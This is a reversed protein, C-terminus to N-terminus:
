LKPPSLLRWITKKAEALEDVAKQTEELADCVAALDVIIPDSSDASLLHRSRIQQVDIHKYQSM